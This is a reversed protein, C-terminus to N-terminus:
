DLEQQKRRRRARWTSQAKDKAKGAQEKARDLLREAWAFETALIALGAVVVLLGPGPLVLMAVGAAIVACGVVFVAMRKGNRAIVRMLERPPHWAM